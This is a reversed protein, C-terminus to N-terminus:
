AEHLAGKLMEDICDNWGIKISEESISKVNSVDGTLEKKEPMPRIPCWDPKTGEVVHSMVDKQKVQCVMGGFPCGIEEEGKINRCNEPIKDVVIIGKM